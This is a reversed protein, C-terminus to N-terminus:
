PEVYIGDLIFLELSGLAGCRQLLLSTISATYESPAMCKMKEPWASSTRIFTEWGIRM